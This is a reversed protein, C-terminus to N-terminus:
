AALYSRAQDPFNSYIGDVGIDQMRRVDDPTDVTFVYVELRKKHADNVYPANIFEVSPNVSFAGLSKAITAKDKLIGALLAGTRIDLEHDKFARLEIHNFSSVVFNDKDWGTALHQQICGAVFPATGAGKLEIHVPVRQDVVEFVEQLTPVQLGKEKTRLKRLAEFSFDTVYGTGNTTRDVTDDHMVVLEDSQLAFVDLEVGDVGLELAREFSALTNEPEYGCAGRHGFIKM